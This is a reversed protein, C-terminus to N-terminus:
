NTTLLRDGHGVHQGRPHERVYPPPAPTRTQKGFRNIRKKTNSILPIIKIERMLRLLRPKSPKEFLAAVQLTPAFPRHKNQVLFIFEDRM